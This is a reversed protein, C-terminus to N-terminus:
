MSRVSGFHVLASIRSYKSLTYPTRMARMAVYMAAPAHAAAARAAAIRASGGGSPRARGGGGCALELAHGAPPLEVACFRVLLNINADGVVIREGARRRLGRQSSV